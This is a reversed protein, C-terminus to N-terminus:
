YNTSTKENQQIKFNNQNIENESPRLKNTIEKKKEYNRAM